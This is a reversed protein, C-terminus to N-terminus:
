PEEVITVNGIYDFGSGNSFACKCYLDSNVLQSFDFKIAFSCKGEKDRTVIFGSDKMHQFDLTQYKERDGTKLKLDKVHFIIKNLIEPYKRFLTDVIIKLAVTTDNIIEGDYLQQKDKSSLLDSIMAQPNFYDKPVHKLRSYAQAGIKNKLYAKSVQNYGKIFETKTDYVIDWHYQFKFGYKEYPCVLCPNEWDPNGYTQILFVGNKIDKQAIIKGVYYYVKSKVKHSWISKTTDQAIKFATQKFTQGYSTSGIFMFTTLIYYRIQVTTPQKSTVAV